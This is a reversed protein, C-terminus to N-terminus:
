LCLFKICLEGRRSSMKLNMSYFARLGLRNVAALWFEAPAYRYRKLKLLRNKSPPCDTPVFLITKLSAFFAGSLFNRSGDQLLM